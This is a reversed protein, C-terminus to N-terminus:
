EFVTHSILLIPQIAPKSYVLIKTKTFGEAGEEKRCIFDDSYSKYLMFHISTERIEM